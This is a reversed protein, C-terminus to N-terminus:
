NPVFLGKAVISHLIERLEDCWSEGEGINFLDNSGPTRAKKVNDLNEPWTSVIDEIYEKQMVHCEGPTSFDLTMGLFTHVKGRKVEVPKIKGYKEKAWKAFRDNVRRDVHSSMINDVHFRITQQKKNVVRLAVCPDYANFQFGIKELDARFKQYWLLSAELM